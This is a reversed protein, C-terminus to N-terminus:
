HVLILLRWFLAPVEGRRLHAALHRARQHPQRAAQPDAQDAPRHSRHTAHHRGARRSGVGRGPRTSYGAMRGASQSIIKTLATGKIGRTPDLEHVRWLLRIITASRQDVLVSRQDVLVDRRTVLLNVERSVDDLFAIPLDPERQVARAVQLADIPDSKGPTRASRRCGATLRPPVRVVIQGAALLARELQTTVQRCDELGWVVDGPFKLRVWRLAAAHGDCDANVVKEALRRGVDDVAVLTHTRKHADVGIVVM